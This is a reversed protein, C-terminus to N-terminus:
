SRVLDVSPFPQEVEHSPRFGFEEYFPVADQTGLRLSRVQRLAPHDLLCRMLRRGLGRGQYGQKVVVDAIRGCWAGDSIARAAGLLQGAETVAGIWATSGRISARIAEQTVSKRWYHGELLLAHEAILEEDPFVHLRGEPIPDDGPLHLFDPIALPSEELIEEIARPDGLHGRNWLGHIVKLVTEKPRDQGLSMKGSLAEVQLGLVRLGKLDKTYLDPQSEPITRGSGHQSSERSFGGQTAEPNVSAHNPCSQHTPANASTTVFPVFAGEPQYKDMLNQLMQRKLVESRVERLVGNAQVSRYYTTAPCAKQPDLFYSPIQAITEIASVLAPRDLCQNKEGAVAGHFLIWDKVIACNLARILPRGDPLTTALHVAGVRRLLDWSAQVSSTRKKRRM